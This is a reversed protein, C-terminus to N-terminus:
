NVSLFSSPRGGRETQSTGGKDRYITRDLSEGIQELQRVTHHKSHCRLVGDEQIVCLLGKRKAQHGVDVVM